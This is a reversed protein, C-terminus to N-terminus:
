RFGCDEVAPTDRQPVVLAHTDISPQTPLADDIGSHQMQGYYSTLFPPYVVGHHNGSGCVTSLADSPSRPANQGRLDVLYPPVVLAQTQRGTQTAAAEHAGTA